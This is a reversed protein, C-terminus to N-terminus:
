FFGKLVDKGDKIDPNFKLINTTFDILMWTKRIALYRTYKGSEAERLFYFKKDGNDLKEFIIEQSTLPVNLRKSM